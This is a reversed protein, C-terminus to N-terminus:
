FAPVRWRILIAPFAAPRRARSLSRRKLRVFVLDRGEFRPELGLAPLFARVDRLTLGLQFSQFRPPWGALHSQGDLLKGRDDFGPHVDPAAHVREAFGDRAPKKLNGRGALRGLYRASFAAAALKGAPERARFVRERGAHKDVTNPLPKEARSDNSGWVVEAGSALPWAM